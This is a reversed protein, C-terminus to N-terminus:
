SKNKNTMHKKLYLLKVTQIIKPKMFSWKKMLIQPLSLLLSPHACGESTYTFTATIVPTFSRKRIEEKHNQISGTLGCKFKLTLYYISMSLIQSVYLYILFFIIIVQLAVMYRKLILINCFSHGWDRSVFLGLNYIWWSVCQIVSTLKSLRWSRWRDFPFLLLVVHLKQLSSINYAWCRTACSLLREIINVIM